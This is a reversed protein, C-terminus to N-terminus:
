KNEKGTIRAGLVTEMHELAWEHAQSNFSAVCDAAVEVEYDRNRADAVTHMVCIDTCVGCVILKGPKLEELRSELDTNYFASYRTKGIKEGPICALENIIESEATGKICHPPFMKFELDDSSHSDAIFLIHSGKELEEELLKRIEPIIKCANQGCYLPYGEECFGKLMDIVLVVNGMVCRWFEVLS